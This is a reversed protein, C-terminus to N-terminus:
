QRDAGLARYAGPTTGAVARFARHLQAAGGFGSERAVVELSLPTSLLLQQARNVRLRRILTTLPEDDALARYLTRRSIGCGAAVVGADLEPDAAHRRVFHHIRERTLISNTPAAGAAWDLASDLLGIAHPVLATAATRELGVLFDAVLRSPGDPDLTVATAQALSRPAVVSRPVRVILQSFAGEFALSYPRSSDVFTMAGPLLSSVRGDQRVQASGQLQINALLYDEDARAIMRRTREVSQAGSSVVSLGIGDLALHRMRGEFVGHRVPRASVRVLSDAVVDAWYDVAERANVGATSWEARRTDQATTVV